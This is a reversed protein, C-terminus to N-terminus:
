QSKFRQEKIWRIKATRSPIYASFKKIQKKTPSHYRKYRKFYVPPNPSISLTIASKYGFEQCFLENLREAKTIIIEALGELGKQSSHLLTDEKKSKVEKLLPTKGSYFLYYDPM